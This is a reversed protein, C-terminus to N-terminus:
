RTSPPKSRKTKSRTSATRARKAASKTGGAPSAATTTAPTASASTINPSGALGNKARERAAFPMVYAADFADFFVPDALVRALNETTFPLLETLPKSDSGLVPEGADDVVLSVVDAWDLAGEVILAYSLEDGLDELQQEAPAADGADDPRALAKLAARRARRMMPRTIPAFLVRAGSVPTWEPGKAPQPAVLM